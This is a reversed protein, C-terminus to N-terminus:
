RQSFHRGVMRAYADEMRRASFLATARQRARLARASWTEPERSLSEVADVFCSLSDPSILAGCEGNPGLVEPLAGSDAAIIPRACSMAELVALGFTEVGGVHVLALAANYGGVLTHRPVRGLFRVNLRLADAQARLAAEDAGEGCVVLMPASEGLRSIADLLFEYRKESSLAGVALLFPERGLQFSRRFDMAARSDPRFEDTDVGEHITSASARSM